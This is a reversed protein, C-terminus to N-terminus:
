FYCYAEHYEEFYAARALRPFISGPLPIRRLPILAERRRRCLWIPKGPRILIPHLCGHRPPHDQRLPHNRPSLSNANPKCGITSIPVLRQAASSSFKTPVSPLRNNRTARLRAFPKIQQQKARSSRHGQHVYLGGFFAPAIRRSLRLVFLPVASPLLAQRCSLWNFSGPPQMSLHRTTAHPEGESFFLLQSLFRKM